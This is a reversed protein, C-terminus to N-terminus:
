TETTHMRQRLNVLANVAFRRSWAEPLGMHTAVDQHEMGRIYRFYIIDQQQQPMSSLEVLVKAMYAPDVPPEIDAGGTFVDSHLREVM